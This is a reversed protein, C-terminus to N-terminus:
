RNKLLIRKLLEDKERKKKTPQAGRACIVPTLMKPTQISPDYTDMNLNSLGFLQAM